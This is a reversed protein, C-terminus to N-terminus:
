ILVAVPQFLLQEEMRAIALVTQGALLKVLQGNCINADHAALHVPHLQNGAKVKAVADPKVQVGTFHALAENLNVLAAALTGQQHLRAIEELAVFTDYSNALARSGTVFDAVGPLFSFIEPVPDPLAMTVDKGLKKLALGLAGVSGVADGDPMVHGSIIVKRSKKLVEAIIKLENM